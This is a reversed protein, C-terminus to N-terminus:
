GEVFHDTFPCGPCHTQCCDVREGAEYPCHRCGSGCCRGRAWLAAATFVFAGTAPDLYGPEGRAMATEHARIAADFGAADPSFRAVLPRRREDPPGATM